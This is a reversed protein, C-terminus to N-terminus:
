KAVQTKNQLMIKNKRTQFFFSDVIPGKGKMPRLLLRRILKQQQPPSVGLALMEEVSNLNQMCSLSSGRM